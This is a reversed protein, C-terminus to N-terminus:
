KQVQVSQGESLKQQGATVLMEGPRLGEVVEVMAGEELGLAVTRRHAVGSEVIFVYRGSEDRLVVAEPIVPVGKKEVFVLTVRAFMGPRLAHDPNPVTIELEATRNVVNLTPSIKTIVGKFPRAAFADVEMSVEAEPHVETLYREPLDATIDVNDIDAIAFLPRTVMAMDGTELYREAVIGSIPATIFCEALQIQAQVLAAESQKIRADAVNKQEALNEREAEMKELAQKSAAGEKALNRTRELDKEIQTLAVDAQKLQAQSTTLAANAQNVQADLNEHDVVAIIQGKTVLDGEDVEEIKAVPEESVAGEKYLRLVKDLHKQAPEILRGPCKPFVQVSTVAKVDGTLRVGWRIAGLEVPAAKVVIVAPDSSAPKNQKETVLRYVRYGSGAALALVILLVFIKGKKRVEKTRETNM